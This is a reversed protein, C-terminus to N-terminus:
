NQGATLTIAAGDPATWKDGVARVTPDVPDCDPNSRGPVPPDFTRCLQGDKIEWTGKYKYSMSPVVGDFTHDANYHTHSEMGGKDVVVLTNGYSSAMPDATDDASAASSIFALVAASTLVLRM